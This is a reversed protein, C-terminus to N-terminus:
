YSKIETYVGDVTEESYEEVLNSPIENTTENEENSTDSSSDDDSSGSDDSGTDTSSGSDDSGTSDGDGSDDSGTDTSTDDTTTSGQSDGSGDDYELELWSTFLNIFAENTYFLNLTDNFTNQSTTLYEICDSALAEQNEIIIDQIKELDIDEKMKNRLSTVLTTFIPYQDQILAQILYARNNTM